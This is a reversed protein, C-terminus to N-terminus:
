TSKHVVAKFHTSTRGIFCAIFTVKTLGLLISMYIFFNSLNKFFINNYLELRKTIDKQDKQIYTRKYLFECM